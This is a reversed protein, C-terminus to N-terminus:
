ELLLQHWNHTTQTVQSRCITGQQTVLFLAGSAAVAGGRLRGGARELLGTGNIILWWGGGGLM